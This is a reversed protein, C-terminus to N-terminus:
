FSARATPSPPSPNRRSLQMSTVTYSETPPSIKNRDLQELLAGSVTGEAVLDRITKGSSEAPFIGEVWLQSVLGGAREDSEWLRRCIDSLPTDRLYATSQAFAALRRRLAKEAALADLHYNEPVLSDPM